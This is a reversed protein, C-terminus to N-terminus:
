KNRFVRDFEDKVLWEDIVKAYVKETYRVTKHGLVRSVTKVTIGSNLLLAGLTNRAIHSTLYKHIGVMKICIRLNKNYVHGTIPTTNFDVKQLFEIGKELLPIQQYIDTKGRKKILWNWDTEDKAIRFHEKKDFGKLDGYALGTYCQVVFLDRVRELKHEQPLFKLNELKSLEKPTLYIYEKEKKALYVEYKAVADKELQGTTYGLKIAAKIRSITKGVYDVSNVDKSELMKKAIAELDIHTLYKAELYENKKDDQLYPILWITLTTNHIRLTEKSRNEIFEKKHMLQKFLDVITVKPKLKNEFVDSIEQVHSITNRNQFYISTLDARIDDLVVNYANGNRGIVKSGDWDKPYVKIKTSLAISRQGNNSVYYQITGLKDKDKNNKRLSFVVNM